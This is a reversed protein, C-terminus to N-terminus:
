RLCPGLTGAEGSFSVNNTVTVSIPFNRELQLFADNGPSTTNDIAVNDDITVGQANTIWGNFGRIDGTSTNIDDSDLTVNDSVIGPAALGYKDADGDGGYGYQWAIPNRVFLNHTLEGGNRM